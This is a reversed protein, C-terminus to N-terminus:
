VNKVPLGVRVKKFNGPPDSIEAKKVRLLVENSMEADVWYKDLLYLAEVLM